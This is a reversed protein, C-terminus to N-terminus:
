RIGKPFSEKTGTTVQYSGSVAGYLKLKNGLGIKSVTLYNNLSDGAKYRNFLIGDKGGSNFWCLITFTNSITLDTTVLTNKPITIANIDNYFFSGRDTPTTDKSTTSHSNGNVSHYNNGSYDVFVQGFNVGFRYEVLKLSFSVSLIYVWLYM